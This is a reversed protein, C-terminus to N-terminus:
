EHYLDPFLNRFIKELRKYMALAASLNRVFSGQMGRRLRRIVLRATKRTVALHYSVEDVDLYRSTGRMLAIADLWKRLAVHTGHLATGTTVTFQRRCSRCFYIYRADYNRKAHRFKM